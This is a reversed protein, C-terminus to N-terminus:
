ELRTSDAILPLNKSHVVSHGHSVGYGKEAIGPLAFTAGYQESVGMGGEDLIMAISDPGYRQELISSIQTAGRYGGVEEDQGYAVM